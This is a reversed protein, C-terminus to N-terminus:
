ANNSRSYLHPFPPETFHSQKHSAAAPMISFAYANSTPDLDLRGGVPETIHPLNCLM